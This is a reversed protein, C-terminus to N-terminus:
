FLLFCACLFNYCGGLGGGSGGSWRGYGGNYCGCRVVAVVVVLWLCWWLLWLGRYPSFFFFFVLVYGCDDVLIVVLWWLVVLWQLFLIEAVKRKWWIEAVCEGIVNMDVLWANTSPQDLGSCSSFLFCFFLAFGCGDVLVVLWCFLITVWLDLGRVWQDWWWAEHGIEGGHRWLKKEVVWLEDRSM